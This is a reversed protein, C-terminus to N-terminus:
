QEKHTIMDVCKIHVYLCEDESHAYEIKEVDWAFCGTDTHILSSVRKNELKWKKIEDIVDQGTIM